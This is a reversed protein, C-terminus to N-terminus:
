YRIQQGSIGVQVAVAAPTPAPSPQRAAPRPATPGSPSPGRTPGPVAQKGEQWDYDWLAGQQREVFDPALREKQRNWSRLFIYLYLRPPFAGEIAVNGTTRM